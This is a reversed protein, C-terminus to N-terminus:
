QRSGLERYFNKHFLQYCECATEELANRNLINIKGRAYNILGAKQLTGAAITVGSRRCGLM